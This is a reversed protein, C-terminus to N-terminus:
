NKIHYFDLNGNVDAFVMNLSDGFYGCSTIKGKGEKNIEKIRAERFNWIVINGNSFCCIINKNDYCYLITKITEDGEFYHQKYVKNGSIDYLIINNEKTCFAIHNMNDVKCICMDKILSTTAKIEHSILKNSVRIIKIEGSRLAIVLSNEERLYILKIIDEELIISSEKLESCLNYDMCFIKKGCSLYFVDGNLLNVISSIKEQPSILIKNVYDKEKNLYFKALLGDKDGSLCSTGNNLYCVSSVPNQHNNLSFVVKKSYFSYIIVDGNKMGLILYKNDNDISMSKVYTNESIKISFNLVLLPSKLPLSKHIFIINKTESQAKYYFHKKELDINKDTLEQIKLNLIEEQSLKENKAEVNPKKIEKVIDNVNEPITYFKNTRIKGYYLKKWEDLDKYKDSTTFLYYLARNDHFSQKNESQIYSNRLRVLREKLKSKLSENQSIQYFENGEISIL